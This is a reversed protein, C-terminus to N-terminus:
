LSVNINENNISNQELNTATTMDKKIFLYNIIPLVIFLILMVFFVIAGEWVKIESGKVPGFLVGWSNIGNLSTFLKAINEYFFQYGFILTIGLVSIVAMPFFLFSNLKVVEVKKTFRNILTFLVVIGYIAFFFLTPYNSIGDVYGDHNFPISVAAMVIFWFGAVIAFLLSGAYLKRNGAVRAFFRHGVVIREEVIGDFTRLCTITFSNAVGLVAIFMFINVIYKMVNKLTINDGLLTDFTKGISGEGVLIQVITIVIYIVSVLIMGIVIALPVTRKSKAENAISGVCTFSDFAFLIAPLSTLVGVFPHSTTTPGEPNQPLFLNNGKKFYIFGIIIVLAIPIFKLASIVIQGIQSVKTAFLNLLLLVVIIALGLLFVFGIHVSQNNLGFINFISEAVFVGFSVLLISFYFIGFNFKTFYGFKKGCFKESWGGLGTNSSISTSAEGFSFATATSIIAALIWSILVFIGNHNNARFVSDNKFFIGIGIVSGILISISTFLGIKRSTKVSVSM